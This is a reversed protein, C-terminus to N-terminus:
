QQQQEQQQISTLVVGARIAEAAIMRELRKALKSSLNHKAAFDAALQRVDSTKWVPIREVSGQSVTVDVYMAPPGEGTQSYTLTNSIQSRQQEPSRLSAAAASATATASSASLLASSSFINPTAADAPASRGADPAIFSVGPALFPQPPAEAIAESSPLSSLVDSPTLSSLSSTPEVNSKILPVKRIFSSGDDTLARFETSFAFPRVVTKGSADRVVARKHFVGAIMAQELREKEIRHARGLLVRRLHGSLGPATNILKRSVAVTAKGFRAHGPMPHQAHESSARHPQNSTGAFVMAADTDLAVPIDIMEDEIAKAAAAAAEDEDEQKKDHDEKEEEENNNNDTNDTNDSTQKVTSLTPAWPDNESNEVHQQDSFVSTSTKTKKSSKKNKKLARGWHTKPHFTCDNMEVSELAREHLAHAHDIAASRISSLHYLWEHRSKGALSVADVRSSKTVWPTDAAASAPPNSSAGPVSSIASAVLNQYNPVYVGALAGSRVNGEPIPMAEFHSQRKSYGATARVDPQFTCASMEAEDRLARLAATRVEVAAKYRFMAQERPEPAGLDVTDSISNFQAVGENMLRADQEKAIELSKRCLMPAFKCEEDHPTLVTARVKLSHPGRRRILMSPARKLDTGSAYASDKAFGVERDKTNEMGLAHTVNDEDHHEARVFAEKPFNLNDKKIEEKSTIVVVEHMAAASVARRGDDRTLTTLYALRNTYLKKLPGLVTGPFVAHASLVEEALPVLTVALFGTAESKSAAQQQLDGGEGQTNGKLKQLKDSHEKLVSLFAAPVEGTEHGVSHLGRALHSFLGPQMEAADDLSMQQVVHTDEHSHAYTLPMGAASNHSSGGGRSGAGRTSHHKLPSGKFAETQATVKVLVLPESMGIDKAAAVLVKPRCDYAGTVLSQLLALLRVAPLQLSSAPITKDVSYPGKAAKWVQALYHCSEVMSPSIPSDNNEGISANAKGSHVDVELRAIPLVAKSSEVGPACLVEIAKSSAAYPLPAGTLFGLHHLAISTEGPTLGLLWWPLVEPGGDASSLGLVPPHRGSARQAATYVCAAAVERAIRRRVLADSHANTKVMHMERHAEADAEAIRAETRLLKNKANQHLSAGRIAASDESEPLALFAVTDHEHQHQFSETRKLYHPTESSSKKGPTPPLAHVPKPASADASTGDWPLSHALKAAELHASSSPDHQHHQFSETRKMFHPQTHNKEKEAAAEAELREKETKKQLIKRSGASISPKSDRIRAEEEAKAREEARRKRETEIIAQREIFTQVVSAPVPNIGIVSEVTLLLKGDLTNKDGSLPGHRPLSSNWGSRLQEKIDEKEEVVQNTFSATRAMYHPSSQVVVHGDVLHHPKRGEVAAAEDEAIQAAAAIAEEHERKLEEEAEEAAAQRTEILTALKLSLPVVCKRMFLQRADPEPIDPFLRNALDSLLAPFVRWSVRQENLVGANIM